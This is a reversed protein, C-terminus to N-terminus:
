TQFISDIQNKIEKVLEYFQTTTEELIESSAIKLIKNILKKRDQRLKIYDNNELKIESIEKEFNYNKYISSDTLQKLDKLNRLLLKCDNCLSRM